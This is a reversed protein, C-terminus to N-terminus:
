GNLVDKTVGVDLVIVLAVVAVPVTPVAKEYVITVSTELGAKSAM